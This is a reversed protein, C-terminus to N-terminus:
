QKTFSYIITNSDCAVDLKGTSDTYQIFCSHATSSMCGPTGNTGAVTITTAGTERDPLSYTAVYGCISDTLTCDNPITLTEGPYFNNSYTGALSSCTVPEVAPTTPAAPSGSGGGAACASLSLFACALVLKKIIDFYEFWDILGLKLARIADKESKITTEGKPGVSVILNEQIHTFRSKPPYNKPDCAMDEADLWEKHAALENEREIRELMEKTKSNM